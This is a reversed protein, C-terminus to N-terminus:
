QILMSLGVWLWLGREVRPWRWGAYRLYGILLLAASGYDLASYIVRDARPPLVALAYDLAGSLGHLLAALGFCLYMSEHRRRLWLLLIYLGIAVSGLYASTPGITDRLLRWDRAGQLALLPAADSPPAAADSLVFEARDLRLVADDAAQAPWSLTLALCVLAIRWM